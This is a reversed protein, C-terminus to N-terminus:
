KSHFRHFSLLAEMFDVFRNFQEAANEAEPQVSNYAKEMIVQFLRVAQETATKRFRAALYALKPKLLFFSNLNRSFGKVQISKVEGFFNRIQTNTLGLEALQHGMSHTIDISEKDFRLRIWSDKYKEHFTNQTSEFLIKKREFDSIKENKAM